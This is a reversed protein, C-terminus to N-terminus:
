ILADLQEDAHAAQPLLDVHDGVVVVHMVRRAARILFVDGHAHLLEEVVLQLSCWRRIPHGLANRVHVLPLVLQSSRHLCPLDSRLPFPLPFRSAPLPPFPNPPLPSAVSSYRRLRPTRTCPVGVMYSSYNGRGAVGTGGRGAERKGRGEFHGVFDVVLE